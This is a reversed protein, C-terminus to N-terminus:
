DINEIWDFVCSDFAAIDTLMPVRSDGPLERVDADALGYFKKTHICDDTTFFLDGASRVVLM